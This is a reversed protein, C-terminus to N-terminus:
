KILKSLMDLGPINMGGTIQSMQEQVEQRNKAIAANVAAKVLDELMEIDNVDISEPDIKLDLLDGHGNVQATVMGGGSSAQSTRKAMDEQMQQMNSQIEKFQGLMKTLDGFGAM